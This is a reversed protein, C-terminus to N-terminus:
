KKKPRDFHFIQYLSPCQLAPHDLQKAKAVNFNHFLQRALFM